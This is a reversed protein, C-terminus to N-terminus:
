LNKAIQEAEEPGLKQPKQLDYVINKDEVYGLKTMEEKFSDVIIPFPYEAGLLIGVRYVKEEKEPLLFYVGIGVLLVVVLFGIILKPKFM